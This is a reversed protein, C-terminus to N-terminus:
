RITVDTEGTESLIDAGSSQSIIMSAVGPSVFRIKTPSTTRKLTKFSLVLLPNHVGRVGRYASGRSSNVSFRIMGNNNASSIVEYHDFVGDRQPYYQDLSSEDPFIKIGTLELYELDYKIAAKVESTPIVDNLLMVPLEFEEGVAVDFKNILQLSAYVTEAQQGIIQPQQVVYVGLSLSIVLFVISLLSVIELNRTRM